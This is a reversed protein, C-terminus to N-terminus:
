TSAWGLGAHNVYRRLRMCSREMRFSFSKNVRKWKARASEEEMGYRAKSKLATIREEIVGFYEFPM